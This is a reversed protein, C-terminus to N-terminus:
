LLRYIYADPILQGNIVNQSFRISSMGPGTRIAIRLLKLIPADLKLLAVDDLSLAQPYAVKALAKQIKEYAARPGEIAVDDLAIMLKWVGQEPEQWLLWFAATVQARGADLQAVLSKGGEILGDTLANAVMEHTDM